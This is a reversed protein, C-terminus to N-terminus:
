IDGWAVLLMSRLARFFYYSLVPVLALACSINMVSVRTDPLETKNTSAHCLTNRIKNKKSSSVLHTKTPLPPSISHPPPIFLIKREMKSRYNARKIGRGRWSWGGGNCKEFETPSYSPLPIKRLLSSSKFLVFSSPKFRLIYLELFVEYDIGLISMVFSYRYTSAAKDERPRLSTVRVTRAIWIDDKFSSNTPLLTFSSAM